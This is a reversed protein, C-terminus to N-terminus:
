FIDLLDVYHSRLYITIVYMIYLEYHNKIPPM